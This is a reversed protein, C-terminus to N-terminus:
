GKSISTCHRGVWLMQRFGDMTGGKSSNRRRTAASQPWFFDRRSRRNEFALGSKAAPQEIMQGMADSDPPALPFFCGQERLWAVLTPDHESTLCHSPFDDRLTAVVLVRGSDRLAKILAIFCARQEKKIQPDFIEEFQDIYFLLRQPPLLDLLSPVAQPGEQLRKHLRTVSMAKPELLAKYWAEALSAIPDEEDKPKFDIVRWGASEPPNQAMVLRSLLGASVLSSKGSGSAGVVALFQTEPQRCRRLLEETEKERGCFIATQKQNFALLGPYPTGDKDEAIDWELKPKAIKMRRAFADCGRLDDVFQRAAHDWTFEKDLLNQRLAFANQKAKGQDKALKLLAGRITKEDDPHFNVEGTKDDKGKIDVAEFLALGADGLAEKVLEYLGSNRSAVLPVGASIAEWAALGFGEHWSLMMAVSCQRLRGFLEARNEIFPLPILNIARDAKTEALGRLALEEEGGSKDIGYLLMEVNRLASPLLTNENASRCASALAAVALRGQKIRDDKPSLRGMTVARFVSPQKDVPTIAALGPVIMHPKKGHETVIDSLRERLLPGVAFVCDAAQLLVDQRQSKEEAEKGGDRFGIYDRYSMHQIVASIGPQGIEVIRNALEGTHIDHGVWVTNISPTIGNDTLLVGVDRALTPGLRDQGKWGKHDALLTVGNKAADNKDSESAELVMCVVKGLGPLRGLAKAFDMNFANIGGHKPGWATALLVLDAM